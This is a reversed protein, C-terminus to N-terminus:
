EFFAVPLIFFQEAAFAGVQAFHGLNTDIHRRAEDDAGFGAQRVDIGSAVIQGVAQDAVDM